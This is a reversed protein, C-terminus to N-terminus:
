KLREDTLRFAGTNPQPYRKVFEGPDFYPKFPPLEDEDITFLIDHQEAIDDALPWRQTQDPQHTDVSVVRSWYENKYNEFTQARLEQLQEQTAENPGDEDELIQNAEAQDNRNGQLLNPWLETIRRFM